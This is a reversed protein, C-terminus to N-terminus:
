FVSECVEPRRRKSPLRRTISGLNARVFHVADSALRAFLGFVAQDHMQRGQRV